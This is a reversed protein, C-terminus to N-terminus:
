EVPAPTPPDPLTLKAKSLIVAAEIASRLQDRTVRIKYANLQTAALNLAADLKKASEVDKMTKEVALVSTTAIERMIALDSSSVHRGLVDWLRKTIASVAGFAATVLAAIFVDSTLITHLLDM